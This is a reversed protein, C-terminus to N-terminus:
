NYELGKFSNSMELADKRGYILPTNSLSMESESGFGDKFSYYNLGIAKNVKAAM